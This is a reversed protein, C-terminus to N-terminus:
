SLAFPAKINIELMAQIRGVIGQDHLSTGLSGPTTSSATFALAAIPPRHRRAPERSHRQPVGCRVPFTGAKDDALAALRDKGRAATTM